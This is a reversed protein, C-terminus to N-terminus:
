NEELNNETKKFLNLLEKRFLVLEFLFWCFFVLPGIELSNFLRSTSDTSVSPDSFQELALSTNVEVQVFKTWFSQAISCIALTVCSIFIKAKM